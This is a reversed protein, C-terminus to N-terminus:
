FPKKFTQFKSGPAGRIKWYSDSKKLKIHLEDRGSLHMFLAIPTFLGFYIIGLVIPSIFRGLLYGARMWLKNLPFLIDAKLITIVLFLIGTGILTTGVRLNLEWCFYFGILTLASTCFVGFSRNSPLKIESPQM